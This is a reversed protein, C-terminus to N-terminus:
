VNEVTEPLPPIDEEEEEEQLVAYPNPYTEEETKKTEKVIPKKPRLLSTSPYPTIRQRKEIPHILAEYLKVHLSVNQGIYLSEFKFAATILCRQNLIELPDMEQNHDENIFLTLIRNSRRNTILKLYVMPIDKQQDQGNKWSLLRLKEFDVGPFHDKIYDRCRSVISELLEVFHKQDETAGKRNTLIIPMQYGGERREQVGFSLLRPPTNLILDQRRDEPDIVGIDVKHYPEGQQPYIPIPDSFCIRDADFQRYDTLAVPM